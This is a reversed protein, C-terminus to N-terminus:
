FAFWDDPDAPHYREASLDESTLQGALVKYVDDTILQLTEELSDEKSARQTAAGWIALDGNNVLRHENSKSWEAAIDRGLVFLANQTRERAIADDIRESVEETLDFWGRPYLTTGSYFANVWFLYDEYTQEQQNVEDAAYTQSFHLKPPLRESWSDIVGQDINACGSILLGILCLTLAPRCLM